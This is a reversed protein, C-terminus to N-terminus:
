VLRINKIKAKIEKEGFEPLNMTKELDAYASQRMQKNRYHESKVNWLCEYELYKSVFKLTTDENWRFM